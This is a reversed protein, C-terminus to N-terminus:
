SFVMKLPHVDMFWWLDWSNQHSSCPSLTKVWEWIFFNLSMSFSGNLFVLLNYYQQNNPIIKRSLKNSMGDLFSSMDGKAWKTKRLALNGNGDTVLLWLCGQLQCWDLDVARLSSTERAGCFRVQQNQQNPKIGLHHTWFRESGESRFGSFFQSVPSINSLTRLTSEEISFSQNSVQNTTKSCKKTKWLIHSLGEWQSIHKLIRLVVLWYKGKRKARSSLLDLGGQSRQIGDTARWTDLTQRGVLIQRKKQGKFEVFGLRGALASYWRNSTMHGVDPPWLAWSFSYSSSPFAFLSWCWRTVQWSGGTNQIM